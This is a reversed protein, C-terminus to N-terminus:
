QVVMRGVNMMLRAIINAGAANGVLANQNRDVLSWEFSANAGEELRAENRRQVLGALLRLGTRSANIIRQQSGSGLIRQAQNCQKVLQLQIQLRM